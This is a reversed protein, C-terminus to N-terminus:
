LPKAAMRQLLFWKPLLWTRLEGAIYLGPIEPRWKGDTKIGGSATMECGLREAFPVSQLFKPTAFGGVRPIQTGDVFRVHELQGNQGIFAQM